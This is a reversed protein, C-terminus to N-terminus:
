IRGPDAAPDAYRRRLYFANEYSIGRKKYEKGMIGKSFVFTFCQTKKLFRIQKGYHFYTRIGM